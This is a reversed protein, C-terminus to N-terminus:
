MVGKIKTRPRKGGLLWGREPAAVVSSGCCPATPTETERSIINM